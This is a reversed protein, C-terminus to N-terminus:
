LRELNLQDACFFFTDIWTGEGLYKAMVNAGLSNGVLFIPVNKSLRSSVHHVFNRLDGTYTGNYGRPTTMKIGGCGRFNMACANWGRNAFSRQLSQMYGFSSDNNIGHLIIIVPQHIPGNLIERKRAEHSSKKLPVEWDVAIKAGDHAMTVIERFRLHEETLSPGGLLYAATSSIIGRTGVFLTPQISRSLISNKTSTMKAYIDGIQSGKPLQGMIIPPKTLSKQLKLEYGLATSLLTSFLVTWGGTTEPLAEVFGSSTRKLNRSVRRSFRRISRQKRKTKSTQDGVLKATEYIRQIDDECVSDQDENASDQTTDFYVSERNEVEDKECDREKSM